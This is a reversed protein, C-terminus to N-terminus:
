ITYPTCHITYPSRAAKKLSNKKPKILFFSSDATAQLLKHSITLEDAQSYVGLCIVQRNDMATLRDSEELFVQYSFM